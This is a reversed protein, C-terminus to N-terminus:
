PPPVATDPDEFNDWLWNDAGGPLFNLAAQVEPLGTAELAAIYQDPGGPKAAPNFVAVNTANLNGFWKRLSPIPKLYHGPEGGLHKAFLRARLDQALTTAGSSIESLPDADGAVVVNVESNYTYGRRDANASGTIILEDDFIWTKSHVYAHPKDFRRYVVTWRTRRPDTANLNALFNRRRPWVQEIGSPDPHLVVIVIRFETDHTSALKAALADGVWRNLLYQDELYIYNKAEAIAKKVARWVQQVGKSTDYFGYLKTSGAVRMDGPAFKHAAQLAKSLLDFYHNVVFGYILPSQFAPYTCCVQVVASGGATTVAARTTLDVNRDPHDNWRDQFVRVLDDTAPGRIKCHVDHLANPEVRDRFVDMGGCYAVAPLLETASNTMHSRAAVIIQVKQHHTGALPTRHDLIGQSGGGPLANIYQVGEPCGSNKMLTNDWLMAYVRGGEKAFYSLLAGLTTGAPSAVSRMAVNVDFSWGLFYAVADKGADYELRDALDAFAEEGTIFFQALNGETPTTMSASADFWHLYKSTSV